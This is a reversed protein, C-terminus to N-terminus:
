APEDTIPSPASVSVPASISAPLLLPASVPLLPPAPVPVSAPLLNPSTMPMSIPFVIDQNSIQPSIPLIIDASHSVPQLSPLPTTGETVPNPVLVHPISSSTPIFLLVPLHVAQVQVESPLSSPDLDPICFTSVPTAIACKPGLVYDLISSDFENRSNSIFRPPVLYTTIQDVM